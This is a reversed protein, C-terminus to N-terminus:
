RVRTSASRMLEGEIYLRVEYEGSPLPTGGEYYIWTAESGTQGGAWEYEDRSDLVVDGEYLWVDGWKLGDEMNEYDWVAILITAGAPYETVPDQWEGDEGLYRYWTIPGFAQEGTAPGTPVDSPAEETWVTLNDFAVHIHSDQYNQAYLAITGASFSDDDVTALPEGNVLFSITSGSAEVRLLDWEGDGNIERSSRWGVLETWGDSSRKYIQYYGDATIGFLYFEHNDPEVRILLGCDGQRSGGVLRAQVQVAFDDFEMDPYGSWVVLSEALVSIQYEGNVYGLDYRNDEEDTTLGSDDHSFDDSFAPEAPQRGVRPILGEEQLVPEAGPFYIHMFDTESIWDGIQADYVAYTYASVFESDSMEGDLWAGFDGRDVFFTLLYRAEYELATVLVEPDEYAPHLCYWGWVIQTRLEEDWEDSVIEMLVMAADEDGYVDIVDYGADTLCDFVLGEPNSEQAQAPSTVLQTLLLLGLFVVAGIGYRRISM